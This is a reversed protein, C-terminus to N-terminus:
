KNKEISKVLKNYEKETGIFSLYLAYQLDKETEDSIDFEEWGNLEIMQLIASREKLIRLKEQAKVLDKEANRISWGMSDNQNYPISTEDKKVEAEFNKALSIALFDRIERKDLGNHVESNKM